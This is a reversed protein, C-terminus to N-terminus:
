GCVADCEPVTKADPLVIGIRDAFIFVFFDSKFIGLTRVVM